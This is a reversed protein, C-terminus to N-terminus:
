RIAECGFLNRMEEKTNFYLGVKINIKNIFDTEFGTYHVNSIM